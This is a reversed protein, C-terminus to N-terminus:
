WWKFIYKGASYVSLGVAITTVGITAGKYIKAEILAGDRELKLDSIVKGSDKKYQEFDGSLTKQKDQSKKLLDLIVLVETKSDELEIRATKLEESVMGLQDSLQNLEESRAILRVELKKSYSLLNTMVKETATLTLSSSTQASLTKPTFMVFLLLLFSILLFHRSCSALGSPSEMDSCFARSKKKLNEWM